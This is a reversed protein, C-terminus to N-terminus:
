RAAETYGRGDADIPPANWMLRDHDYTSALRIIPVVGETACLDLFQQWKSVNLDDLRIVEQVFGGKGVLQRAYALHEPWVRPSWHVPDPYRGDDDLLLHVGYKRRSSTPTVDPTPTFSPRTATSLRNTPKSAPRPAPTEVFLSSVATPGAAPTATGAPTSTALPPTARGPAVCGGIGSGLAAIMGLCARRRSIRRPM